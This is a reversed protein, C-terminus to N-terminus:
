SASIRASAWCRSTTTRSRPGSSRNAGTALGSRFPPSRRHPPQSTRSRKPTQSPLLHVRRIFGARVAGVRHAVHLTLLSQPDTVGPPRLLLANSPQSVLWWRRRHRRGALAGSDTGVALAPRLSAPVALPQIAALPCGLVRRRQAPRSRPPGSSGSAELDAAVIRSSATRRGVRRAMRGAAAKPVLRSAVAVIWRHLPM